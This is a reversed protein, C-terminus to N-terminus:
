KRAAFTRGTPGENVANKRSFGAKEAVEFLDLDAWGNIFPEAAFHTMWDFMFVQTPNMKASRGIDEHLMVGGPKLLRHCERFINHVGARSTEHFLLNTYILDFSEDAFRTHEADQQSFHIKRGLSEARAHGYRLCPAAVDIAHVEAEPFAEAFPLTNQGITCGMDLIRKPKLNPYRKKIWEVARKGALDGWQGREPEGITAVRDWLAGAFVDDDTIEAHYGGPVVHIEIETNYRPVKVTPDLELSGLKHNSDRYRRARGILNPLDREIAQGAAEWQAEWTNRRLASWTQVMPDALMADRLEKRNPERGHEKVFSKRVRGDCVVQLAPEVNQAIQRRFMWIFEQRALEDHTPDLMMEHWRQGARLPANM